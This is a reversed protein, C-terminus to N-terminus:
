PTRMASRPEPGVPPGLRRRVLRQLAVVGARDEVATFAGSLRCPGFLDSPSNVYRVPYLASSEIEGQIGEGRWQDDFSVFGAGEYTISSSGSMLCYVINANTQSAEAYTRGPQPRWFVEVLLVQAVRIEEPAPAAADADPQPKTSAPQVNSADGPAPEVPLYTPPVQFALTWNGDTNRSFFGREFVEMYRQPYRPAKYSVIEFQTQAPQCAAGTVLVLVAVLRLLRSKSSFASRAAAALLSDRYASFGIFYPMLLSSRQVVPVPELGPRRSVPTPRTQGYNRMRQTWFSM